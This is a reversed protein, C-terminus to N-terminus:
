IEGRFIQFRRNIGTYSYFCGIKNSDLLGSARARAKTFERWSVRDAVWM